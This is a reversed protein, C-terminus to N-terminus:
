TDRTRRRRGAPAREVGARARTRLLVSPRRSARREAAPRARRRRAPAVRVRAVDGAVFRQDDAVHGAAIPRKGDHRVCFSLTAGAESRARRSRRRVDGTRSWWIEGRFRQGCTAAAHEDRKVVSALQAPADAVELGVVQEVCTTARHATAAQLASGRNGVIAGVFERQDFDLQREEARELRDVTGGVDLDAPM